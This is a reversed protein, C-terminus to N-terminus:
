VYFLYKPLKKNFNPCDQNKFQEFGKKHINITFKTSISKKTQEGASCVSM